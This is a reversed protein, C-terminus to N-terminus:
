VEVWEQSDTDYKVQTLSTVDSLWHLGECEKASKGFWSEDDMADFDDKWMEVTAVDGSNIHLYCKLLEKAEERMRSWEGNGNNVSDIWKKGVRIISEAFDQEISVGMTLEAYSIISDPSSLYEDKEASCFIGDLIDFLTKM